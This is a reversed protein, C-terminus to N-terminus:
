SNEAGTLPADGEDPTTVLGALAMSLPDGSQRLTATVTGGLRADVARLAALRGPDLLGFLLDRATAPDPDEPEDDVVLWVERPGPWGDLHLTWDDAVLDLAGDADPLISLEESALDAAFADRLASEAAARSVGNVEGPVVTTIVPSAM